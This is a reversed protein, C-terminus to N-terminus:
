QAARDGGEEGSLGKGERVGEREHVAAAARGLPGVDAEQRPIVDRDRGCDRRRNPWRASSAIRKNPPRFNLDSLNRSSFNDNM